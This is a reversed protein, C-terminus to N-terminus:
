APIGARTGRARRLRTELYKMFLDRNCCIEVLILPRPKAKLWIDDTNRVAVKAMEATLAAQISLAWGRM